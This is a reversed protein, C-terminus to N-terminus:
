ARSRSSLAIVRPSSGHDKRPPAQQSNRRIQEVVTKIVQAISDSAGNESTAPISKQPPVLFKKVVQPHQFGHVIGTTAFPFLVHFLDGKGIKEKEILKGALRITGASGWISCGVKILTVLTAYV